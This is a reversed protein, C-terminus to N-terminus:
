PVMKPKINPQKNLHLYKDGPSKTSTSGSQLAYEHQNKTHNLKKYSSKAQDNRKRLGQSFSDIEQQKKDQVTGEQLHIVSVSKYQASCFM